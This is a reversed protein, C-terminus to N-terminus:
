EPATLPAGTEGAVISRLRRSAEVAREKDPLTVQQLVMGELAYLVIDILPEDDVGLRRLQGAVANRYERHYREVPERLQPRRRAELLAELLFAHVHRSRQVSEALMRTFETLSNADGLIKANQVGEDIAFRLAETILSDISGFHYRVLSHAVGAAEAVSRASVRGLGQELAVEVTTRM